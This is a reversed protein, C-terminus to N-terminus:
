IKYGCGLELDWIGEMLGGVGTHSWCPPCDQIGKNPARVAEGDVCIHPAAAMGAIETLQGSDRLREHVFVDAPIRNLLLNWNLQGPSAALTQM